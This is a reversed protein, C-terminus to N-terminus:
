GFWGFVHLLSRMQSIKLLNKGKRFLAGKKGKSKLAQKANVWSWLRLKNKGRGTAKRQRWSKPLAELRMTTEWESEETVMIESKRAQIKTLQSLHSIWHDWSTHGRHCVVGARYGPQLEWFMGWLIWGVALIEWKVIKVKHFRDFKDKDSYLGTTVIRCM